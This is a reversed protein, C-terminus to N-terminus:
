ALEEGETRLKYYYEMTHDYSETLCQARIGSATSILGIVMLLKGKYRYIHRVTQSGMAFGPKRTSKM